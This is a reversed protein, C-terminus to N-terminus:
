QCLKSNQPKIPEEYAMRLSLSEVGDSRAINQFGPSFRLDSSYAVSLYTIILSFNSLPRSSPYSCESNKVNPNPHEQPTPCPVEIDMM